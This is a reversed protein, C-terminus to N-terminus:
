SSATNGKFAQTLNFCLESVMFLEWLPIIELFEMGEELGEFNVKCTFGYGEYPPSIEPLDYAYVFTFSVDPNRGMRRIRKLTGEYDKANLAIEAHINHSLVNRVFSLLDFFDEYRAGLRTHLFDSFSSDFRLAEVMAMCIGRFANFAVFYDFLSVEGSNEKADELVAKTFKPHFHYTHINDCVLSVEFLTEDFQASKALKGFFQGAHLFYFNQEVLLLADELLQAARM